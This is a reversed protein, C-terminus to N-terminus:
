FFVVATLGQIIYKQVTHTWKYAAKKWYIYLQGQMNM